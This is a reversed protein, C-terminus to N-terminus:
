CTSACCPTDFAVTEINDFTYSGTELVDATLTSIVAGLSTANLEELMWVATDCDVAGPMGGPLETNVADAAVGAGDGVAVTIILEGEVAGGVAEGEGAVLEGPLELLLPPM